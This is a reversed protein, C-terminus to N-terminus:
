FNLDLIGSKWEAFFGIFLIIFCFVLGFFGIIGVKLFSVSIPIILCIEIDMIIFLLSVVFFQVEFQVRSDCFPIFGCEYQTGLENNLNSLRFSARTSIILIIASIIISFFIFIIIIIPNLTM